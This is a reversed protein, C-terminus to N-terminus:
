APACARRGRRELYIQYTLELPDHAQALLDRIYGLYRRRALSGAFTTYRLLADALPISFRAAIRQAFALQLAFFSRPYLPQM